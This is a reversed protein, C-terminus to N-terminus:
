NSSGTLLYFLAYSVICIILILVIALWVWRQDMVAGRRRKKGKLQQKLNQNLHHAAQQAEQPSLAQLGEMADSEMGETMLWQEVRHREAANLKGELYAQLM